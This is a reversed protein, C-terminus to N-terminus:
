RFPKRRRMRVLLIALFATLFSTTLLGIVPIFINREGLLLVINLPRRVVVLTDSFRRGEDDVYGIVMAEIKRDAVLRSLDVVGGEREWGSSLVMGNPLSIRVRHFASLRFVSKVSDDSSMVEKPEVVYRTLNNKTAASLSINAFTKKPLILKAAGPSTFTTLPTGNVYLTPRAESVSGLVEVESVYAVVGNLKGWGWLNSGEPPITGTSVDSRANKRMVSIVQEVTLNPALQLLLAVVGAAHPAAMSTGRSVAYQSGPSFSQVSADKSRAGVIIGGPATIDPKTRGDITPGRGSYFELQGVEGSVSWVQGGVTWRNKTTYAGVTLVKKATGPITVTSSQTIEYGSSRIFSESEDDCTNSQIWAHWRGDSIERPKVSLSWLGPELRNSSIDVLVEKNTGSRIESAEVTVGDVTRSGNIRAEIARGRPNSVVFDVINKHNTVFSISISTTESPVTWRLTLETNRTLTGEAHRSDNASNGAAVVFVVGREAWKDLAKELPTSGDHAGIDTGLSLVVVLRRGLEFSKQVAYAIGDMLGKEDFFWRRGGCAPGGSKVVILDAGPAVGRLRWDGYVGGVAVSAVITGHGVTDRQPCTGRQIEVVGCEYGYGFEIPPKGGVTQDWIYLIKSEGNPKKFAPHSYDVGTDIVAILVGRGDVAEVNIGTLNALQPIGIELISADLLPRYTRPRHVVFGDQKLQAAMQPSIKGTSFGEVVEVLGFPLDHLGGHEVVVELFTEAPRPPSYVLLLFVVLLSVVAQLVVIM